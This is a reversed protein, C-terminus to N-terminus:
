REAQLAAALEDYGGAVCIVNPYGMEVLTKAALAARGGSACHVVLTREATECIEGIKFELLGRPVNVAGPVAARGHEEPERVDLVLVRPDQRIRRAAEAPPCTEVAARAAAVLDMGTKPM